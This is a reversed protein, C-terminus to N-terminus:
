KPWWSPTSRKHENLMRQMEPWLTLPMYNPKLVGAEVMPLSEIAVKAEELSETNLVIVAGSRDELLYIEKLINEEYLIWVRDAEQSELSQIKRLDATRSRNASM